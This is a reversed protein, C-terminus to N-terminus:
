ACNPLFATGQNSLKATSKIERSIFQTGFKGCHYCRSCVSQNAFWVANSANWAQQFIGSLFPESWLVVFIVGKLEWTLGQLAKLSGISIHLDFLCSLGGASVTLKGNIGFQIKPSQHSTFFTGHNKRCPIGQQQNTNLDKQKRVEDGSQMTVKPWFMIPYPQSCWQKKRQGWINADIKGKQTQIETSFVLLLRFCAVLFWSWRM